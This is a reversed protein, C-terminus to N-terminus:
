PKCEILNGLGDNCKGFCQVAFIGFDGAGTTRDLDLDSLACPAPPTASVHNPLIMQIPLSPESPISSNGEADFATVIVVHPDLDDFCLAIEPEVVEAYVENNLEVLYLAPDGLSAAWAVTVCYRIVTLM